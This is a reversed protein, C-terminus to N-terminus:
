MRDAVHISVDIQYSPEFSVILGRSLAFDEINLGSPASRNPAQAVGGGVTAHCGEVVLIQEFKSSDQLRPLRGVKYFHLNKEM